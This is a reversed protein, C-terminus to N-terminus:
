WGLDGDSAALVAAGPINMGKHSSLKVGLQVRADVGGDEPELVRLRISVDAWDVPNPVDDGEILQPTLKEHMGTVLEAVDGRLEGIRLKPGPLDGLVAVEHGAQEAAARISEITRAHRERDAHSFNLRFVDAGAEVLRVLTDDDWSAPGVTAIIKTRRGHM